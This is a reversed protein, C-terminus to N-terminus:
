NNKKYDDTIEEIVRRALSNEVSNSSTLGSSIILAKWLAWSRGRKWTGDDLAVCDRFRKRSDPDFFTWSIALDCAPDGVSLLGFDIVANLNEGQLLINGPSVDGHVWVLPHEWETESGSAWIKRVLHHDLQSALIDISQLTEPEYISVKGGRFYNHTGALPGNESSIKYLATLFSALQEAVKIKNSSSISALTKGDIWNYVSWHWPFGDGPVGLGLPTPILLPLKPALFPLWKQEKEVQLAYSAASPFRLLMRSGLHFTRNDWGSTAVPSIKLDAWEPFQKAVLAKAKNEDIYNKMQSSGSSMMRIKMTSNRQVCNEVIRKLSNRGASISNPMITFSFFLATTIGVLQIKNKKDLKCDM